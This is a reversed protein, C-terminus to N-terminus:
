PAVAIQFLLPWRKGTVFIRNGAEDFAIGNLVEQPGLLAPDIIGTLDVFFQVAGTVPDIAAIRNSGFLNAWILGDIFELENLNPVPQGADTVTLTATVQFTTPDFFRLRSTGDSMVLEGGPLTTIGWGEGAYAFQGQLALTDADYVFGQGELTLQVLRGNSLALGEGFFAEDLLVSQLVTGTPWDVRRLSSQGRLGTSEFMVAGAYVLGQTFADTAHPFSALVRFGLVPAGAPAQPAAAPPAMAGSGGGECGLLLLLVLFLWPM